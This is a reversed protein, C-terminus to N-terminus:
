VIRLKCSVDARMEGARVLVRRAFATQLLPFLEGQSRNVACSLEGRSRHLVCRAAPGSCNCFFLFHFSRSALSNNGVAM